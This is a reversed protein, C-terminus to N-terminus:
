SSEYIPTSQELFGDNCRTKGPGKQERRAAQEKDGLQKLVSLLELADEQNKLKDLFSFGDFIPRKLLKDFRNITQRKVEEAISKLHAIQTYNEPSPEDGELWAYVTPRSVGLVTALDSMNLKLTERIFTLQERPSEALGTIAGFQADHLAPPHTSPEFFAQHRPREFGGTGVARAKVSVYDLDPELEDVRLPKEETGGYLCVMM